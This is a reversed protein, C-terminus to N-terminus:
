LRHRDVPQAGRELAPQWNAVARRCRRCALAARDVAAYQGDPEAVIIGADLFQQRLKAVAGDFGLLRDARRPASGVEGTQRSGRVPESTRCLRDAGNPEADGGIPQLLGTLRPVPVAAAVPEARERGFQAAGDGLDLASATPAHCAM